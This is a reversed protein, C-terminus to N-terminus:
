KGKNRKFFKVVSAVVLALAILAFACLSLFIYTTMWYWKLLYDFLFGCAFLYLYPILLYLISKLVLQKGTAHTTLRTLVEGLKEKMKDM